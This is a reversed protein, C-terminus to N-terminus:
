EREKGRQYQNGLLWSETSAQLESKGVAVAQEHERRALLDDLMQSTGHVARLDAMARDLGAQAERHAAQAAAEQHSLQSHFAIYAQDLAPDMVGRRRRATWDSFFNILASSAQASHQEAALADRRAQDVLLRHHQALAEHARAAIPLWGKKRTM